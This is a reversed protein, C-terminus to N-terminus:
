WENWRKLHQFKLRLNGLLSTRQPLLSEDRLTMSVAFDQEVLSGECYNSPLSSGLDHNPWDYRWYDSTLRKSILRKRLWIRRQLHARWYGKTASNHMRNKHKLISSHRKWRSARWRVKLEAPLRKNSRRRSRLSQISHCRLGSYWELSATRCRVWVNNWAIMGFAATRQWVIKIHCLHSYQYCSMYSFPASTSYCGSTVSCDFRLCGSTKRLMATMSLGEYSSLHSLWCSFLTDLITTAQKLFADRWFWCNKCQESVTCQPPTLKDWIKMLRHEKWAISEWNVAAFTQDDCFCARLNPDQQSDTNRVAARLLLGYHNLWM